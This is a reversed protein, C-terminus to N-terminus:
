AVCEGRQWQTALQQALRLEAQTPGLGDTALVLDAIEGYLPDRQAALALLVQERDPRQLLPRSRDRALRRLQTHPRAQLWVVFGRQALLRRNDPDLVSGGGTAVLQGNGALLEALAQRERERFGAEGAHEFISGVTAGANHEVRQDSDAFALGLRPALRRGIATKGAGMPGVLVLNPAPNM